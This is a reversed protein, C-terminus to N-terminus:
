CVNAFTAMVCGAMSHTQCGGGVGGSKESGNSYEKQTEQEKNLEGEYTDGLLLAGRM